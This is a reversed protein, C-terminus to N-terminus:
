FHTAKKKKKVALIQRMYNLTRQEKLKLRWYSFNLHIIIGMYVFIHVLALLHVSNQIRMFKQPCKNLKSLLYMQSMSKARVHAMKLCKINWLHGLVDFKWFKADEHFFQQRYECHTTSYLIRELWLPGWYITKDFIGCFQKLCRSFSEALQILTM